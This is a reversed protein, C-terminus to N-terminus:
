SPDHASGPSALKTSGALQDLTLEQSGGPTKDRIYSCELVGKQSANLIKGAITQSFGPGQSRTLEAVLSDRESAMQRERISRRVLQKSAEGAQLEEERVREEMHRINKTYDSLLKEVEATKTQSDKLLSTM